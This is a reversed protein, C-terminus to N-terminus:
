SGKVSKLMKSIQDIGDFTSPLKESNSVVGSFIMNEFKDLASADSAKIKTSYETYSQIFQCLTQRLELQMLQAKISRHNVLIVRFFYILIIEISFLPILIFLHNMAVTEGNSVTKATLVFETMLPAIILIAMVILSIFSWFAETKKQKSLENFGQYLGVFNFGTKYTELKEKLDSVEKQKDSIEKDWEEKLKGAEEAKASFDKFSSVNPDNLIKKTINAPMAYSAYVLQSALNNEMDNSDSQIADRVSRLDMGLEMGDEILFDFECLFRYLIVYIHDIILPKAADFERLWKFLQEGVHKINFSCKADWEEPRNKISELIVVSLELRNKIVENEINISETKHLFQNIVIKNQENSFFM